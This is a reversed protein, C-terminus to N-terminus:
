SIAGFKCADICLRCKKCDEIRIKAIRDELYIASSPCKEVCAGCGKCIEADIKPFSSTKTISDPPQQHKSNGFETWRILPINCKPCKLSQCPVGRKHTVSFNCQPCICAGFQSTGKKRQQLKNRNSKGKGLM